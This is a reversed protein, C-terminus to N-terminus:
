RVSIMTSSMEYDPMTQFFLANSVYYPNMYVIMPIPALFSANTEMGFHVFGQKEITQLYEMDVAAICGSGYLVVGSMIILTVFSFIRKMIVVTYFM